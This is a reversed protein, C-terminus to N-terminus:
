GLFFFIGIYFMQNSVFGHVAEIIYVPLAAALCVTAVTGGRGHMNGKSELAQLSDVRFSKVYMDVKLDSSKQSADETSHKL